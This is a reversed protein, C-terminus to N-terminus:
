FGEDDRFLRRHCGVNRTGEPPKGLVVLVELVVLVHQRRGHAVQDLDGGRVLVLDLAAFPAEGVQRHDGRMEVQAGNGLGFRAQLHQVAQDLALIDGAQDVGAVRPAFPFQDEAQDRLLGLRLLRDLAQPQLRHRLLGDAVAEGAQALVLLHQRQGVSGAAAGFGVPQDTDVARTGHGGEVALAAAEEQGGHAAHLRRGQRDHDLSSFIL